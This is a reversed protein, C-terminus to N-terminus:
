YASQIIKAPKEPARYSRRSRVILGKRAVRVELDHVKGDFVQPTFGLVYQFHMEKLMQTVLGNVDDGWRLFMWGGGTQWAFRKLTEAPPAPRHGSGDVVQTGMRFFEKPSPPPVKELYAQGARPFQVMYVMLEDERVRQFVDFGSKQSWTDEGDTFILLIRRGGLSALETRGEDIADYLRTPNGIHRDANINRALVDRDGSFEPDIYFNENFTGFRAQDGPMLRIAFQEAVSRAFDMSLTMSQSTDLLMLATIPQQGAVFNTLKQPKGEDLVQFDKQTLDTVVRGDTELVTSYIAVTEVGTRFVPPRQQPDQASVALVSGCAVFAVLAARRV